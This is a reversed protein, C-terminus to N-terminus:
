SDNLTAAFGLASLHRPQAFRYVFYNSTEAGSYRQYYLDLVDLATLRGGERSLFSGLRERARPLAVRAVARRALRKMGRSGPGLAKHIRRAIVRSMKPGAERDFSAFDPFLDGRLATPNLLQNLTREPGKSRLLKALESVSPGRIVSDASVEDKSDLRENP